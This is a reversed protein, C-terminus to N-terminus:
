GELGSRREVVGGYSELAEVADERSICHQVRLGKKTRREVTYKASGDSNIHCLAAGKTSRLLTITM